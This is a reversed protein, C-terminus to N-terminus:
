FQMTPSLLSAQAMSPLLWVGGAAKKNRRRRRRRSSASGSAFPSATEDCSKECACSRFMAVFMTKLSHIFQSTKRFNKTIVVAPAFPNVIALSSSRRDIKYPFPRGANREARHPQVCFNQADFAFGYFQLFSYLLGAAFDFDFSAWEHRSSHSEGAGASLFTAFSHADSSKRSLEVYPKHPASSEEAVTATEASFNLKLARQEETSHTVNHDEDVSASTQLQLLATLLLVLALSSLGGRVPDDLGWRHLLFRLAFYAPALSPYLQLYHQMVKNKELGKGANRRKFIIEACRGEFLESLRLKVINILPKAESYAEVCFGGKATCADVFRRIAEITPLGSALRVEFNADSFPMHLGISYSGSWVFDFECRLQAQLVTRVATHIRSYVSEASQQYSLVARTYGRVEAALVRVLDGAYKGTRAASTPSAAPLDRRKLPTKIVELLEANM